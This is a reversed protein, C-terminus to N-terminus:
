HELYWAYVLHLLKRNRPHLVKSTNKMTPPLTKTSGCDEMYPPRNWLVDSEHYPRCVLHKRDDRTYEQFSRLAQASATCILAKQKTLLITDMSGIIYDFSDVDERTTLVPGQNVDSNHIKWVASVRKNAIVEQFPPVSIIKYGIDSGCFNILWLKGKDLYCLKKGAGLIWRNHTWKLPFGGTSTLKCAELPHPQNTDHMHVSKNFMHAMSMCALIWVNNGQAIGWGRFGDM